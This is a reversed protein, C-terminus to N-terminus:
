AFFSGSDGCNVPHEQGREDGPLVTTHVSETTHIEGGTQRIPSRRFTPATGLTAEGHGVVPHQRIARQQALGLSGVVRM